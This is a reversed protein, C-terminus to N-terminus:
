ELLECVNQATGTFTVSTINGLNDFQTVLHGHSFFFPPLNAPLVNPPFEFGLTPGYNTFSNNTVSFGGPGSINLNISKSTNVNTATVFVPGSGITSGDAFIIVKGSNPRGPEPALYVPFSCAEPGSAVTFAVFPNEVFIPATAVAPLALMLLFVTFAAMSFHKM